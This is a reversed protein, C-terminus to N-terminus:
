GRRHIHHARGERIHKETGSRLRQINPAHKGIVIAAMAAVLLTNPLIYPSRDILGFVLTLAAVSFVACISSLSVIRTLLVLLVFLSIGIIFVRWDLMLMLAAATTVGKGGKFGFFLPFIHGLVCFIGAAYKIIDAGLPSAHFARSLLIAAAISAVCKLFDGLFALIAPLKGAIRLVNTAGANRSGHRRVDAGTFLRTMLYSCSVSGLLYAAAASLLFPLVFSM